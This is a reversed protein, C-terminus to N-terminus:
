AEDGDECVYELYVKGDIKALKICEETELVVPIIRYRLYGYNYGLALAIEGLKVRKASQVWEVINTIIRNIKRISNPKHMRVSM